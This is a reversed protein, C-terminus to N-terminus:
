DPNPPPVQRLPDRREAGDRREWADEAVPGTDPVAPARHRAEEEPAVSRRAAIGGQSAGANRADEEARQWHMEARGDPRGEAEWLAHARNRVDNERVSM